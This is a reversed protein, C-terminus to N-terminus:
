LIESPGCRARKTEVDLTTDEKDASPRGTSRSGAEINECIGSASTNPQENLSPNKAAVLFTDLKKLPYIRNTIDCFTYKKM